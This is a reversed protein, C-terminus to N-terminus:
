ASWEVRALVERRYGPGLEDIVALAQATLEDRIGSKAHVFPVFEPLLEPADLVSGVSLHEDYPGSGGLAQEIRAVSWRLPDGNGTELLELLLEQHEYDQFQAGQSSAFFEACLELTPRYGWVPPRYPEGFEPLHGILWRVLPQVGPWSGIERTIVPQDLGQEIWARADALSMEVISTDPDNSREALEVLVNDTSDSVLGADKVESLMNHDIFVACTLEHGDVLRVGILLEDGDGLVHTIRAARYVEIHTLEIIWRPLRHSRAAVELRCRTRLNEDDVLLEALVALVATSNPVWQAILGAVTADLSPPEGRDGTRLWAFPDPRTAQILESTLVLLDRPGWTVGTPPAPDAIRPEALAEPNRKKRRREERRTQKAKRRRRGDSM